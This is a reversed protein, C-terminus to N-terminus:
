RMAATQPPCSPESNSQSKISVQHVSSTRRKECPSGSVMRARTIPTSQRTAAPKKSNMRNVELGKVRRSGPTGSPRSRFGM